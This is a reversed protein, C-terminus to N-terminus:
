VPTPLPYPPPLDRAKGAVITITVMFIFQAEHAFHRALHSCTRGPILSSM